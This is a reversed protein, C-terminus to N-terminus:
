LGRGSTLPIKLKSKRLGPQRGRFYHELSYAVRCRLAVDSFKRLRGIEVARVLGVTVEVHHEPSQVFPRAKDNGIRSRETM